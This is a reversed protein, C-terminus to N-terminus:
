FYSLRRKDKKTLPTRIVHSKSQYAVDEIEMIGTDLTIHDKGCNLFISNDLVLIEFKNGCECKILKDTIKKDEDSISELFKKGKKTVKYAYIFSHEKTALRIKDLFDMERLDTLDDEGEQSVNMIRRTNNIYVISLPAYDYDFVQDIIGKFIIGKLPLAKILLKGYDTYESILYLLRKHETTIEEEFSGNKQNEM